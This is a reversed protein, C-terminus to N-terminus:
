EQTSETTQTASEPDSNRGSKLYAAFEADQQAEVKAQYEPNLVQLDAPKAHHAFQLLLKEQRTLPYSLLNIAHRSERNRRSRRKTSYQVLRKGEASRETEATASPPMMAAQALPTNAVLRAAQVASGQNERARHMQTFIAVLAVAAMAVGAAPILFRRSSRTRQSMAAIELRQRTRSVLAEPPNTEGLMKLAADIDEDVRMPGNHKTSM